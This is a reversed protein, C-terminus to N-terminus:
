ASARMHRKPNGVRNQLPRDPPHALSPQVSSDLSLFDLKAVAADLLRQQSQVFPAYHKETTRVSSHGLLLQVTRIPVDQQLLAVAFTDRFRHPHGKVGAGQLVSALTQRFNGVTTSLKGSGTWFFYKGGPLITLESIVREPLRVSLIAGTKMQRLTLHGTKPNLKKRELACADSIRLGSYLLLLVFARMRARATLMGRHERNGMRACASLISEIEAPEYPLTAPGSEKPPKLRKAVNVSVWGRDVCFAFFARLCEIEKRLTSPRAASQKDRGRRSTRFSTLAELTLTSIHPYAEHACFKRFNDLTDRYSRITSQALGRIECDELYHETASSVKYQRPASEPDLMREIKREAREWNSTGLSHRIRKGEIRGDVWVPCSCSTDTRSHAACSALHRRWLKLEGRM